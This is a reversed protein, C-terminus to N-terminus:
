NGSQISQIPQMSQNISQFSYETDIHINIERTKRKTRRNETNSNISNLIYWGVVSAVEFLLPSLLLGGESSEGLVTNDKGIKRSLWPLRNVPLTRYSTGM